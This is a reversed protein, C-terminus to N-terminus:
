SFYKGDHSKFLRRTRLKELQREIVLRAIARAPEIENEPDLLGVLKEEDVDVQYLAQRLALLDNRLMERIRGTLWVELENLSPFVAETNSEGGFPFLADSLASLNDKSM